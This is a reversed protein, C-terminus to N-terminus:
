PFIRGSAVLTVPCWCQPIMMVESARTHSEQPNVKLGSSEAFINLIKSVVEMDSITPKFFIIM